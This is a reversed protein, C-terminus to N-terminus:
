VRVSKQFFPFVHVYSNDLSNSQINPVVSCYELTFCPMCDLERSLSVKVSEFIGGMRESGRTGMSPPLGSTYKLVRTVDFGADFSLNQDWAGGVVEASKVQAERLDSEGKLNSDPVDNRDSSTKGGSIASMLFGERCLPKSGAATEEATGSVKLLECDLAKQLREIERQKNEIVLQREEALKKFKSIDAGDNTDRQEEGRFIGPIAVGPIGLTGAQSSLSNM